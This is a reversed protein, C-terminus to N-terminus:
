PTRTKGAKVLGEDVKELKMLVDHLNEALPCFESEEGIRRATM